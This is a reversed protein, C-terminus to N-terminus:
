PRRRPEDRILLWLLYPAGIIAIVIGVPIEIPTFLTRGATDAVLMMIAGVLASATLPVTRPGSLRRALEPAILAVSGVPGAVTVALATLAAALILAWLRVPNVRVGLTMATAEPLRLLQLQRGLLPWLPASLAVGVGLAVVALGGRGNLSGVTWPFAQNAADIPARALMLNTAAGALAGIGLGVVIIRYGYGGSGGSLAVALSLATLAGVFAMATPALSVSLAVISAVAFAAAGDEIGMIAPTALRNRSVTQTICGGLAFAAGAFTAALVRELRLERVVFIQQPTGIGAAALLAELPGIPLSGSMLALAWAAILALLLGGSVLLARREILVSQRRWGLRLMGPPAPPAKASPASGAHPLSYDM